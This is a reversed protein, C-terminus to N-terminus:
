CPFDLRTDEHVTYYPLSSECCGPLSSFGSLSIQIPGGADKYSAKVVTVSSAQLIGGQPRGLHLESGKVATNNVISFAAKDIKM